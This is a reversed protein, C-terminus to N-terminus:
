KTLSDFARIAWAASNSVDKALGDNGRSMAAGAISQFLAAAKLVDAGTIVAPQGNEDIVNLTKDKV